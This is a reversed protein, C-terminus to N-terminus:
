FRDVHKPKDSICMCDISGTLLKLLYSLTPFQCVTFALFGLNCFHYIPLRGYIESLPAFLLPGVAFGLVYVSVVFSGLEVSTSNFEEMLQPVGPAFMSSALPTVFTIASVVTITVIKLTKSFNLPNHPDDPGDWWVINAGDEESIIEAANENEGNEDLEKEENNNNRGRNSETGHSSRPHSSSKEIDQTYEEKSLSDVDSRLTTEKEIDASPHAPPIHPQTNNINTDLPSAITSPAATVEPGSM